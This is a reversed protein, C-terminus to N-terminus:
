GRPCDECDGIGVIEVNVALEDGERYQLQCSTYISSGINVSIRGRIFKSDSFMGMLLRLLCM